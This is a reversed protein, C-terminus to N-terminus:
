RFNICTTRKRTEFLKLVYCNQPYKTRGAAIRVALLSLGEKAGTMEKYTERVTEYAGIRSFTFDSIKM